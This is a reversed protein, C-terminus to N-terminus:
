TPQPVCRLFTGTGTPTPRCVWGATGCDSDVCCVDTCQTLATPVGCLNSFCDAFTSCPAGVNGATAKTSPDQTADCIAVVSGSMAPPLYDDNCIFQNRAQGLYLVGCQKSSCCPPACLQIANPNPSPHCDDVTMDTSYCACFGSACDSNQTCQKNTAITGPPPVCALTGVGGFTTYGCSTGNQCNANSCCTDECRGMTCVGSRCNTGDSCATGPEGRGIGMRGESMAPICYNGGTGAGWCISGTDCDDSTCCPKTCTAITQGPGLEAPDSCIGTTCATDGSCSTGADQTGNPVCQQRGKDCQNPPACCGAPAPGSDPCEVCANATSICQGTQPVCVEGAPCVLNPNDVIGDCNDDKGNCVEKAGPFITNTSDDCDRYIPLGTNPDPGKGCKTYGDEDKDSYPGDDIIGDCDNDYGDCVDKAECPTCRSVECYMGRPCTGNGPDVWPTMTCAPSVSSPVIAECAVSAVAVGLALFALSALSSGIWALKM